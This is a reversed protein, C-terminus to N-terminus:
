PKHSVTPEHLAVFRAVDYGDIVNAQEFNEVASAIEALSLTMLFLRYVDAPVDDLGYSRLFPLIDPMRPFIADYFARLTAISSAQRKASRERETPLSWALHLELDRFPEPLQTQTM